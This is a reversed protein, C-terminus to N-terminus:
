SGSCTNDRYMDPWGAICGAALENIFRQNHKVFFVGTALENIFRQNHKVFFVGTALENIFHQNHKVFFVHISYM